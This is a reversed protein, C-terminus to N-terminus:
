LCLRGPKELTLLRCGRLMSSGPQPALRFSPTEQRSQAMRNLMVAEFMSGAVDWQRLAEVQVRGAVRRGAAYLARVHVDEGWLAGHVVRLAPPFRPSERLIAPSRGLGGGGIDHDARRGNHEPSGEEWHRGAIDWGFHQRQRDAVFQAKHNRAMGVLQELASEMMSGVHGDHLCPGHSSPEGERGLTSEMHEGLKGL